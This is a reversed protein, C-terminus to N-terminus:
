TRGLAWRLGDALQRSWQGGRGTYVRLRYPL